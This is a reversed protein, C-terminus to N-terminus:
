GDEESAAGAIPEMLQRCGEVADFRCEELLWAPAARQRLMLRVSKYRCLGCPTSAYSIIGLQAGDAGSNKELVKLVDMLLSHREIDDDPLELFTLIKQEDAPQYNKIFLSVVAGERTGNELQSLAFARILSHENNQLANFACRRVESNVHQCLDILRGDFVPLARNVFVKLLNSTVNADQSQCLHQLVIGLEAEDARMGWRRLWFLKNDGAEVASIVDIGTFDRLRNENSADATPEVDVKVCAHWRDCFLRIAPDTSHKLLDEIREKGCREIADDVLSGDDWEWDRNALQKGRIRAAFQFASEGDLHIIEEEGLLNNEAFPKQQVIEYLRKRFTDDGAEAYHRALECLQYASREDSLDYLAHLIPVRFRDVADVARILKWLWEGRTEELQADYRQDKLCAALLPEDDLRRTIAWQLARGLGKQLADAQQALSPSALPSFDAFHV